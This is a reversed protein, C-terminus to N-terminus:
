RVPVKSVNDGPVEGLSYRQGGDIAVYGGQKGDVPSIQNPDWYVTKIDSLATYDGPGFRVRTSHPDPAPRDPLSLLGQEITLANLNPGAQQFGTAALALHAWALGCGNQGCPHGPKGMAQWVRGPDGQDLNVPVPLQSPGFAHAMQQPDYLRGLLDYDLLGSGPLLFEPFFANGTMGSTLFVPAIPDCMCVVTTVKESILKSVTAQTQVTAAEIDSKYTSIIPNDAGGTCGSVQDRVRSATSVNAQIEPVVIGLHRKTGRGGITPHITAGAHDAPRSALNKCYYEAIFDASQTGDMVADYRFPRRQSYYSEDFYSGGFTVIGANAWIDFIDAYLSTYWVVAFPHMQVVQQAAATCKDYDPPTTPCDGTVTEVKIKRGYLEYHSNIFDVYVQVTADEEAAPVALGQTQLIANVQENPKSRFFVVTITDSTVGQATAGGNDGAFKPQCPPGGAILIDFQKGDATCHSTDGAAVGGAGNPDAGGGASGAGGSGAAGGAGVGDAGTGSVGTTVTAGGAGSAAGGAAPGSLPGTALQQRDPAKSPALTIFLAQVAVIAIFPGYLRLWSRRM